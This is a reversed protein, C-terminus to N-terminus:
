ARTGELTADRARATKVWAYPRGAIGDFWAKTCLAASVFFVPLFWVLYLADRRDARAVLLGGGLELLPGLFLLTWLVFAQFPEFPHVIGGMWLGLLVLGAASAVPVHFVLLFLTTELKQWVNLHKSRWVKRGYDRWAQQHGRAWRYRQRWYRGLTVVGEEEDVATVDYRVREGRLVLRLTLDTDETVSEINWGGIARLSTARVACNAGGYAPLRFMSQRGYENVLYGAMYDIAILRTLLSDEPNRIACRGQVAGVSPDEFHRVLRRVVDPRPTHDADFVIIIEGTAVALAANLAGSKGGGAGDPRHICRLLPEERSLEDLIEGTADSSSDNVVVLQLRDAPYDLALLSSVLHRVVAQENKAAVLVSVRPRFGTDVLPADLDGPASRMASIAFSFHRAFFVLFVAELAVAAVATMGNVGALATAALMGGAIIAFVWPTARVRPGGARNTKM